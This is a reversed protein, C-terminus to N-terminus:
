EESPIYIEKYPARLKGKKTIIGADIFIEFVEEKSREEEIAATILRKIRITEETSMYNSTNTAM